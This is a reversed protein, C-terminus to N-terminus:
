ACQMNSNFSNWHFEAEIINDLGCFRFFINEKKVQKKLTACTIGIFRRKRESYPIGDYKKNRKNVPNKMSIQTKCIIGVIVNVIKM